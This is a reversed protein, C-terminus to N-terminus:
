RSPNEPRIERVFVESWAPLFGARVAVDMSLSHSESTGYFPLFGLALIREKLANVLFSALGLGEYEPDVDVGIQWLYRGDESAGAMAALRDGDKAAVAIVDPQTPSYVLAHHFPNRDRFAEIAQRDMWEFTFGGEEEIEGSLARSARSDPLFYVHTDAIEYGHPTLIRDLKRLTSFNCFWEPNTMGFMDRIQELIREDAMLYADGKYLIAKFFSSMGDYVRAGPLDARPNIMIRYEAEYEPACNTDLRFQARATRDIDTM